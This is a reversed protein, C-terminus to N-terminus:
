KAKVTLKINLKLKPKPAVSKTKPKLVLKVKPKTSEFPIKEEERSKVPALPIQLIQPKIQNPVEEDRDEMDSIKTVIKKCKGIYTPHRPKGSTTLANCRYRVITGIPHTTKYNSRIFDNVGSLGFERKPQPEGDEIPHCRFSGLRGTNRGNGMKYGIIVAEDDMVEKHKLLSHSKGDQYLGSPKNLMIGEGGRELIVKFEVLAEKNSNVTKIPVLKIPCEPDDLWCRKKFLRELKARRETFSLMGTPDAIDFLMFKAKQWVSHESTVSRFVGTLNWNGYGMFLEGDVPIDLGKLYSLYWEPANIINGYRSVLRQNDIDWQARQGDYKESLVYGRANITPQGTKRDTFSHARM